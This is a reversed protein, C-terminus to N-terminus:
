QKTYSIDSIFNYITSPDLGTGSGPYALFSNRLTMNASNISEIILYVPQSKDGKDGNVYLTLQSASIAYGFRSTTDGTAATIIYSTGNTNFVQYSYGSDHITAYTSDLVLTGATTYARDRQQVPNWRGVIDTKNQNTIKNKQCSFLCTALALVTLIYTFNRRM